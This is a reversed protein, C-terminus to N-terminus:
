SILWWGLTFSVLNMILSLGIAHVISFRLERGTFFLFAAEFIVAFTESIIIFFSSLGKILIPFIFWITLLSLLNALVIMILFPRKIKLILFYIFAIATEVPITLIASAIFFIVYWPNILGALTTKEKVDLHNGDLTVMYDASYGEKQFVNSSRIGDTFTIIMRYYDYNAYKRPGQPYAICSRTTCSFHGEYTKFNSCDKDSCILLEGRLISIAENPFQFDFTMSSNPGADARVPLNPILVSM